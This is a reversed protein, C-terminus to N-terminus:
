HHAFKLNLKGVLRGLGDIETVNSTCLSMLQQYGEQYALEAQSWLGVKLYRDGLRVLEM